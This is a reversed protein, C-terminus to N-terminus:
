MDTRDVRYFRRPVGISGADHYSMILEGSAWVKPSGLDHWDGPELTDSYQLQYSYGAQCPWGISYGSTSDGSLSLVRDDQEPQDLVSILLTKECRLGGQDTCRLRVSYSSRHEYNLPMATQLLNGSIAFYGNDDSGEGGVLMYEFSDGVDPDVASLEGVVAGSAQNEAVGGGSLVVDTPAENVDGIVITVAEEHWLGGQDTTRVRVSHANAAEFDFSEDSQLVNGVIRFSGNGSSGAGSVLSYTFTDGPDPDTSAFTGIPTGAPQNEAVTGGTMALDTPARNGPDLTVSTTHWESWNGGHDQAKARLELVAGPDGSIRVQASYSESTPHRLPNRQDMALSWAGGSSRVDGVIKFIGSEDVARIEIDAYTTTKSLLFAQIGPPSVVSVKTMKTDPWPPGEYAEGSVHPGTEPAAGRQAWPSLEFHPDRTNGPNNNHHEPYMAISWEDDPEFCNSWVRIGAAEYAYEVLGDCRISSIMGAELPRSSGAKPNIANITIYPYSIDADVLSKGKAVISKRDAFPMTSGYTSPIYAGYYDSGANQFKEIFNGEQPGKDPNNNPDEDFNDLSSEFTRLTGSEDIGAVLGAHNYNYGLELLDFKDYLADGYEQALTNGREPGPGSNGSAIVDVTWVSSWASVNGANDYARVRWYITDYPINTGP